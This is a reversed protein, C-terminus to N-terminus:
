VTLQEVEATTIIKAFTSIIQTAAEHLESESLKAGKKSNSADEVFVMQNGRHYGDIITSICCMTSGYGIVYIEQQDQASRKMLETFEPNSYSSFNSKIVTIENKLPRFDDVFDSFESERSFIQGDQLHQVHIIPWQAQRAKNLVKKANELSPAISEIRFPRKDTIYEKQIDIVVLTPKKM